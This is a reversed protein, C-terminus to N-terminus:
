GKTAPPAELNGLTVKQALEMVQKLQDLTLDDNDMLTLYNEEGLLNMLLSGAAVESGHQKVEYLYRLAVNAKPRRPITYSKGDLSFLEVREVQDDPTTTLEVAM